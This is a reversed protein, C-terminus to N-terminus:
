DDNKINMLYINSLIIAFSLTLMLLNLIKYITCEAKFQKITESGILILLLIPFILTYIRHIVSLIKPYNELYSSGERTIKLGKNQLKKEIAHIYNYQRELNIHSQFYKVLISLFLFILTSNLFDSNFQYKIGFNESLLSFIINTIAEPNQLNFFTIYTILVLYIFFKDRNNKYNIIHEFTDKYHDYYIEIKKNSQM